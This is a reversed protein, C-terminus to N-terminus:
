ADGCSLVDSPPTLNAYRAIAKMDNVSLQGFHISVAKGNGVWDKFGMPLERFELIFKQTGIGLLWTCPNAVLNADHVLVLRPRGSSGLVEYATHRSAAKVRADSWVGDVEIETFDYAEM